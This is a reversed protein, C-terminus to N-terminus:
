NRLTQLVLILSEVRRFVFWELPVSAPTSPSVKVRPRPRDPGRVLPGRRCQSRFVRSSLPGTNRTQLVGLELEPVRTGSPCPGPEVTWVPGVKVSDEEVLRYTPDSPRPGLDPYGDLTGVGRHPDSVSPTRGRYVTRDPDHPVSVPRVVGYLGFKPGQCLSPSVPSDVHGQVDGRPIGRPGTVASAPGRSGATGGCRQAGTVIEVIGTFRFSM